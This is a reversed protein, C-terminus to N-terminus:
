KGKAQWNIRISVKGHVNHEKRRESKGHIEFQDYFKSLFGFVTIFLYYYYGGM